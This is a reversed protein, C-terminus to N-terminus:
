HDFLGLQQDDRDIAVIRYIQRESYSTERAIQAITLAGQTRLLRARDRRGTSKPIDIAMGGFWDALQDAAERGLAVCIPHNAGVKLPVYLRVGGFANVLAAALKDGIEAALNAHAIDSPSQHNM